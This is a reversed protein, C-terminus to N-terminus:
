GSQPERTLCYEPPHRLTQLMVCSQEAAKILMDLQAETVGPAASICVAIDAGQFGVPVNRDMRLTGRVDVRLKVTVELHELRIALRNAIMRTSSDLCAAIAAALIEGPNPLDSEGGVAKHVGVTLDAPLGTGFTVHGYLPQDAPVDRSSTTAADIIWAEDPDRGYLDYLPAQRQSVCISTDAILTESVPQNQALM